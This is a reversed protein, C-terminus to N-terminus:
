RHTRDNWTELFARVGNLFTGATAGDILRHDYSMSLNMMPRIGIADNGDADPVVVARKVMAYMGLIAVQPANIIPTGGVTGFGGLNTITFTAGSLDDVSLTRSRAREALDAVHVALGTLNLDAANRIVPVMLGKGDDTSVAIGLNIHDVTIISDGRIQGNLWPTKPLMAVVARAVYALLTPRSQAGSSPQQRTRAAVVSSMDVEILSTVHVATDVSHRMRQAIERRMASMRTAHEGDGLVEAPAPLAAPTAPRSTLAAPQADPDTSPPRLASRQVHLLFDERTVRQGPGTATVASLDVGFQQALRVVSSSARRASGAQAAPCDIAPTATAAPAAAAVDVPRAPAAPGDGVRGAAPRAAEPLRVRALPAGVPVVEGEPVLIEALIGGVPSPIETDVKDTSVELLPEDVVVSDGVAKLWTGVTGEAVSVGMRPMVVDALTGDATM